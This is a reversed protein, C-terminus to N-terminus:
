YVVAERAITKNIIFTALLCQLVLIVAAASGYGYENLRFASRHMLFTLTYTANGPGGGTMIYMNAFANLGGTVALVFCVKYSEAMLPITIKLHTKIKGCGDIRAAELYHEPISKVATLILIFHYGVYQWSNTFILVYIATSEDALWNQRYPLGMAEFIQNLLGVQPDLIALWLQCVVTISLVVPIFFSVKFFKGLKGYHNAVALALITGISVQFVLQIIAFLFGNRLATHFIKDQFLEIYNDLGNFTAQSLGDWETFSKIFVQGIPYIVMVTFILLAPLVFVAIARRNHLYRNM